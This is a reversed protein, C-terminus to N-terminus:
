ALCERCWNNNYQDQDRDKAPVEKMKVLLQAKRTKINERIGRLMTNNMLDSYTKEEKKLMELNEVILRVQENHQVLSPKHKHFDDNAKQQIDAQRIKM